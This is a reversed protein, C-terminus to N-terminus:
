LTCLSSSLFTLSHNLREIFLLLTVISFPDKVHVNKTALYIIFVPPPPLDLEVGAFQAHARFLIYQTWFITEIKPSLIYQKTSM